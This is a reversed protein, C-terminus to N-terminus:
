GNQVWFQFIVLNKQGRQAIIAYCLGLRLPFFKQKSYLLLWANEARSNKIDHRLVKQRRKAKGQREPLEIEDLM